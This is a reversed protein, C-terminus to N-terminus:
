EHDSCWTAVKSAIWQALETPHSLMPCHGAQQLTWVSSSGAMDAVAAACTIPVLADQGGFCHAQPLQLNELLPRTDWDKLYQLGQQMDAESWSPLQNLLRVDDRASPSGMAVLQRFRRLSQYASQGVSAAFLKFDQQPMAWPWDQATVFCPNSCQTILGAFHGPDRAVLRTALQGGLSWGCCVSGETIQSAQQELMSEIGSEDEPLSQPWELFRVNIGSSLAQRMGQWVKSDHGWGSILVLDSM